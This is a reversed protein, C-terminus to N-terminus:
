RRREECQDSLWRRLLPELSAGLSLRLRGIPVHQALDDLAALLEQEAGTGLGTQFTSARLLAVQAAPSAKVITTDSQAQVVRLIGSLPLWRAPAAPMDAAARTGGPLPHAFWRPEPRRTSRRTSAVHTGLRAGSDAPLVILRDVSFPPAREVHRCATSKGAGSPGVFAIVGADLEVSAAHLVGGGLRHGLVTALGNLLCLPARPDEDLWARAAWGDADRWLEAGAFRTFLVGKSDHWRWAAGIRPVPAAPGLGRPLMQLRCGAAFNPSQVAAPVGPTIAKRASSALRECATADGDLELELGAFRAIVGVAPSMMEEFFPTRNAEEGDDLGLV